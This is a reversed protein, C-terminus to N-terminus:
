AEPLRTRTKPPYRRGTEIPLHRNGTGTGTGHHTGNRHHPHCPGSPLTTGSSHNCHATGTPHHRPSVSTSTTRELPRLEDAYLSPSSLLLLLLTTILTKLLAMTPSITYFSHLAHARSHSGLDRLPSQSFYPSTSAPPPSFSQLHCSCLNYVPIM